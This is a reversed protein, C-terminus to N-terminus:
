ILHAWFKVMKGSFGVIGNPVHPRHISDSWELRFPEKPLHPLVSDTSQGEHSLGEQVQVDHIVAIKSTSKSRGWEAASGAHVGEGGAHYVRLSRDISPSHAPQLLSQSFVPAIFSLLFITKFCYVLGDVQKKLASSWNHWCFFACHSNCSSLWHIFSSM